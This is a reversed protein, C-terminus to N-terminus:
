QRQTLVFDNGTNVGTTTTFDIIIPPTSVLNLRQLQDRSIALHYKGPLVGAFLFFGDYSSRTTMVTEGDQNKLELAVNSLERQRLGESLYVVGDIEGTEVVPYELISVRGDRPQLKYGEITSNLYPDKLSSGDLSIYHYRSNPLGTSLTIDSDTNETRLKTRDNKYVVDSLWEENSDFIGNNNKDMFAGASIAGNSFTGEPRFNWHKKRPERGLSVGFTLGFSFGSNEDYGASVGADYHKFDVNASTYVSPTSSDFNHDASIEYYYNESSGWDLTVSLSDLNNEPLLEYLLEGRLSFDSFRTRFNLSGDLTEENGTSHDTNEYELANSISVSDIYSSFYVRASDVVKGSYYNKRHLDLSLPISSNIKLLTETNIDESSTDGDPRNDFHNKHDISLTLGEWGKMVGFRYASRNRSIEELLDFSTYFGFLSSRLGASFYEDNGDANQDNVYFGSFTLDYTIGRQYEFSYLANGENIGDKLIQGDKKLATLRYYQKGASLMESGVNIRRTEELYEGKRGYFVIKFINNGFLLPVEEFIYRGNDSSKISDLLVGNRYLEIDWGPDVDGQITTTSFQTSYSVPFQSLVFGRGNSNVDLMEQTQGFVDGFHIESFRFDGLLHGGLDTRSLSFRINQLPDTENGNIFLKGTMWLLDGSISTTSNLQDNNETHQYNFRQNIFPYDIFQYDDQVTVFENYTETKQEGGLQNRKEERETREQLPIKETPKVIIELDSYIIELKVPLLKEFLQQHLYIDDEQILVQHKPIQVRVGNVLALQKKVDIQITKNERIFWGEATGENPSVDIPFELVYSFQSLPLFIGTSNQYAFIGESLIHRDLVVQFIIEDLNNGSRENSISQSNVHFSTLLMTLVVVNLFGQKLSPM